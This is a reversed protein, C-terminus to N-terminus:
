KYNDIIYKEIRERKNTLNGTLIQKELDIIIENIYNGPEKNLIISIDKGNISIEKKSHIPLEAYQKNLKSISEKKIQYAVTLNYLDNSYLTYPDNLDQKLIERIKKM